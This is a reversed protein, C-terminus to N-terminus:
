VPNNDSLFIYTTFIILDKLKLVARSLTSYTNKNALM